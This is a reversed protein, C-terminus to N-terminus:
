PRAPPPSRRVDIRNEVPRFSWDLESSIKEYFRITIVRYTAKASPADARQTTGAYGTVQCFL